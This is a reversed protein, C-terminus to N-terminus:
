RSAWCVINVFWSGLSRMSVVETTNHPNLVIDRDKELEPVGWHAFTQGWGVEEGALFWVAAYAPWLLNNSLSPYAHKDGALPVLLADAPPTQTM